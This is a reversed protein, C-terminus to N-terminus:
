APRENGQAKVGLVPCSNYAQASCSEDGPKPVTGAKSGPTSPGEALALM